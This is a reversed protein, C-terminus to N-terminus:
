LIDCAKIYAFSLVFFLIGIGLVVIDMTNNRTDAKTSQTKYKAGKISLTAIGQFRGTASKRRYRIHKRLPSYPGSRWLPELRRPAFLFLFKIFTKATEGATGPLGGPRPNPGAM